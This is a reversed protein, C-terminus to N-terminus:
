ASVKGSAFMAGITADSGALDVAVQELSEMEYPYLQLLLPHEIYPELGAIPKGDCDVSAHTRRIVNFKFRERIIQIWEMMKERHESEPLNVAGPAVGRVLHGAAGSEIKQKRDRRLSAKLQSEMQKAEENADDGDFEKLGLCRGL